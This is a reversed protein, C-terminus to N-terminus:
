FRFLLKPSIAVGGFNDNIIESLNYSAYNVDVGITIHTYDSPFFKWHLGPAILFSLKERSLEQGIADETGSSHNLFLLSAGLGLGLELKTKSNKQTLNQSFRMASNLIFEGNITGAISADPELVFLPNNEVLRVYQFVATISKNRRAPIYLDIDVYPSPNMFRAFDGHPIFIGGGIEFKPRSEPLNYKFNPDDGWYDITDKKITKHESQASGVFGCLALIIILSIAKM